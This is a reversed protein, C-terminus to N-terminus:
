VWVVVREGMLTSSGFVRGADGSDRKVLLKWSAFVVMSSRVLAKDLKERMSEGSGQSVRTQQQLLALQSCVSEQSSNFDRRSLLSM